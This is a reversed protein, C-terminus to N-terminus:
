VMKPPNSFGLLRLCALFKVVFTGFIRSRLDDESFINGSFQRQTGRVITGSLLSVLAAYIVCTYEAKNEWGHYFFFRYAHLYRTRKFMSWAFTTRPISGVRLSVVESTFARAEWNGEWLRGRTKNTEREGDEEGSSGSTFVCERKGWAVCYWVMQKLQAYSVSSQLFSRFDGLPLSFIVATVYSCSLFVHPMM